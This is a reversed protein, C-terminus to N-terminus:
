FKSNRVKLQQAHGRNLPVTDIVVVAETKDKSVVRVKMLANMNLLKDALLDKIKTKFESKGRADLASVQEVSAGLWKELLEPSLVAEVTDSGDTIVSPNRTLSVTNM